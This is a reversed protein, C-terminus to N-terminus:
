NLETKIKKESISIVLRRNNDIGIWRKLVEFVGKKQRNLCGVIVRGLGIRDM